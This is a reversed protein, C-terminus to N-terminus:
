NTLKKYEKMFEECAADAVAKRYSYSNRFDERRKIDDKYEIKSIVYLIVTHVIFIGWTIALAKFEWKTLFVLSLPIYCILFPIFWKEMFIDLLTDM